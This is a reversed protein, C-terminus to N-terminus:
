FGEPGILMVYGTEGDGVPFTGFVVGGFNTLLSLAFAVSIRDTALIDAMDGITRGADSRLLKVIRESIDMHDTLYNEFLNVMQDPTITIVDIVPQAPYALQMRESPESSQNDFGQFM